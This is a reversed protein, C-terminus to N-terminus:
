GLLDRLRYYLMGLVLLPTRMREGGIFDAHRVRGFIDLKETDGCIADALIKGSFGSMALGHGSFGQAYYLARGRRGIDPFRNATIALSGGWVYELPVAAIQPFVASMRRRLSRALNKPNENNSYSVRGGFLMRFDASCRFYDLVFNMDCVGRRAAILNNAADEGLPATACIYTGVPMVRARLPPAIRLYANGALVAADCNVEGDAALVRAGGPIEEASRAATNEYIVAGANEAARALGLLYKLPHLHGSNDDALAGCYKRSAIAARTEAMDLLRAPYAYRNTMKDAMRELERCHRAHLAALLHGQQMDCDINYQSIRRRLLNIAELSMDFLYKEDVGAQAAPKKLEETSYGHIFQGGNRGSAGWGVREAELVAVSKGSLALELACSLGTFGGGIVCVDARTGGKLPPAPPPRSVGAEYYSDILEAM